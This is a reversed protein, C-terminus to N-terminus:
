VNKDNTVSVILCDGLKKAKNLYRLHGIHLLDFVGHALVINKFKKNLDKKKFDELTIIKNM